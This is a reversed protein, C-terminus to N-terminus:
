RRIARQRVRLDTIRYVDGDADLVYLEGAADEGFATISLSTDMRSTATWKGQWDPFASWIRGSCFDGFFYIGSLQPYQAGRYRYGGTVSCGITHNYEIIPLEMTGDNCGSAPTFCLSGEMKRWGYNHGGDAPKILDIEEVRSQGVDGIFLEKTLRDFSFRWPNRFGYAWIEGRADPAAAFPNTDPIGYPDGGDVDIRLIKGLLTKLSQARDGPDGAAGGDGTGIYLYGDPGFQLQGGNHNAFPQPIRLLLKESSAAAVNPDSSVAFRSVVTDGNRDTYDAYFFGNEKYRPHFAISLLGREGGTSVRNTIDLFPVPLVNPGDLIVVQGGQLTIFLRADGAHTLAVPRNLGNTVAELAIRVDPDPPPVVASHGYAAVFLLLTFLRKM